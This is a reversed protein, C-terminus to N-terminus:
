FLYTSIQGATVMIIRFLLGGALVLFAPVAVPVHIGKMEMYELIAPVVLGMGVFIGWFVATFEGGFFMEATRVQVEGGWIMGLFM